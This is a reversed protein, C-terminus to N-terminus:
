LLDSLREIEIEIRYKQEELESIRRQVDNKSISNLSAIDNLAKSVDEKTLGMLVDSTIPTTYDINGKHNLVHLEYLMENKNSHKKDRFVRAGYGNDFKIDGQIDNEFNKFHLMDFDYKQIQSYKSFKDALKIVKHYSM